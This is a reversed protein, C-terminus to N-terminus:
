LVDSEVIPIQLAGSLETLARYAAIHTIEGDRMTFVEASHVTAERDSPVRFPPRQQVLTGSFTSECIVFSDACWLSTLDIKLDPLADRLSNLAQRARHKGEAQWGFSHDTLVVRDSLSAEASDLDGRSLANVFGNVVEANRTEAESGTAVIWPADATEHRAPERPRFGKLAMGRAAVMDYYLREDVIEGSDNFRAITLVPQAVPTGPRLVGTLIGESAVVDDCSMIRVRLRRQEPLWAPEVLGAMRKLLLTKLESKRAAAWGDAELTRHVADSAFLALLQELDGTALAHRAGDLAKRQLEIMGNKDTIAAAGVAVVDGLEDRVSTLWFVACGM